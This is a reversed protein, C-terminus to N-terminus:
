NKAKVDKTKANNINYFLIQFISSLKAIKQSIREDINVDDRDVEVDIDDNSYYIHLITSKRINFLECMFAMWEDPMKTTQWSERLEEVDCFKNNLNFDVSLLSEQLKTAVVKTTDLSRLKNLIDKISIKSSFVFFSQNKRESSCFQINEGFTDQM